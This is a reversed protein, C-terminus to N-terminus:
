NQWALAPALDRRSPRYYILVLTPPPPPSCHTGYAVRERVFDYFNHEDTKKEM